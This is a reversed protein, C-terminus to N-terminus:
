KKYAKKKTIKNDNLLSNYEKSDVAVLALKGEKNGHIGWGLLSCLESRQLKFTELKLVRDKKMQNVHVERFLENQKFVYPKQKLVRYVVEKVTEKKSKSSPVISKTSSSEAVTILVNVLDENQKEKNM